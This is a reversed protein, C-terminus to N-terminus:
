RQGAFLPNEQEEKVREATALWQTINIFSDNVVVARALATDKQYLKVFEAVVEEGRGMEFCDDFERSDCQNAKCLKAATAALQAPNLSQYPHAMVPFVLTRSRHRRVPIYAIFSGSHVIEAMEREKRKAMAEEYELGM